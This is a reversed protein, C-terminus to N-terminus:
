PAVGPPAECPVLRSTGPWGSDGFAWDYRRHLPLLAATSDALVLRAGQFNREHWDKAMQEAAAAQESDLALMPDPATIGSVDGFLGRALAPDDGFLRRALAISAGAEVSNRPLLMGLHLENGIHANALALAAEPQGSELARMLMPRAERRWADFEPTAIYGFSYVPALSEGLAYRIMAEPEGALAAQRVYRNAQAVLTEPVGSCADRLQAHLLRGTAIKNANVLDGKAVM